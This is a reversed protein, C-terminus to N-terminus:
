TDSKNNSREKRIQEVLRDGIEDESVKRGLISELETWAGEYYPLDKTHFIYEELPGFILCFTDFIQDKTQPIPIKLYNLNPHM